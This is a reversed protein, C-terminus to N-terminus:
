SCPATEKEVVLPHRLSYDSASPIAQIGKRCKLSIVVPSMLNVTPPSNEAVNLLVFCGIDSGIRPTSGPELGLATLDEPSLSLRYAPDVVLVPLALFCLSPNLLSQMFVLPRTKPQDVFLFAIQDEFGPLGSPFDFISENSYELEQFYVTSLRPM